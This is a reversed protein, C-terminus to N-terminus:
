RTDAAYKQAASPGGERRRAYPPRTRRAQAEELHEEKMRQVGPGGAVGVEQLNLVAPRKRPGSEGKRSKRQQSNRTSSTRHLRGATLRWGCSSGVAGSLRPMSGPLSGQRGEKSFQCLPPKVSPEEAACFSVNWRIS